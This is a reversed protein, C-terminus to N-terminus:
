PDRLVPPRVSLRAQWSQAQAAAWALVVSVSIM